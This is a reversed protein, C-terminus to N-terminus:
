VNLAQSIKEFIEDRTGEGCVRMLEGGEEYFRIVPTTEQDYVQLRRRVVEGRDDERQRLEGGCRDCRGATKSPHNDLHYNEGCRACHRRGTLRRVLEETDVDLTVVRHKKKLSRAQVLSRPFGDLIYGKECDKAALRERVMVVVLEDPVLRGERMAGEAKLGLPTKAERQARLIDGTSIQPLRLKEALRRAQTGKGAGPPGLLIINM